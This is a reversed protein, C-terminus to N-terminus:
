LCSSTLLLLQGESGALITPHLLTSSDSLYGCHGIRFPTVGFLAGGLAAAMVEQSRGAEGLAGVAVLALQGMPGAPLAPRVLTALNEHGLFGALSEVRRLAEDAM